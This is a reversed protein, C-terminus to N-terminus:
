SGDVREHSRPEIHVLVDANPICARIDAAIHEAVDHAEGVSLSEDVTIHL